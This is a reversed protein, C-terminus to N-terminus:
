KVKKKTKKEQDRQAKIADVVSEDLVRLGEDPNISYYGVHYHVIKGGPAIVVWLPLKAGSERPDGFKELLSGSDVGIPYSLNMFSQLKRISRLAEGRQDNKEVRPDIAVGIVQTGSKSRKSHLFDLYGVQGYPEVLPEGQYEWFHLVITKDALDNSSFSKQDLSKISFDPTPQGVFKKALESVDGARRLQAKVDRSIVSSLRSFPTDDAETELQSLLPEVVALQEATLEPETSQEPRKLETQIKRLTALPAQFRQWNEASVPQASELDMLMSFQDGQGMFVRQKLAVVIGTDAEVALSKARGFNTSGEVLWCDRDKVKDRGQVEYEFKGEAWKAEEKVKAFNEFLPLPLALPHLVGNHDHLLQITKTPPTESEPEVAVFGYREPWAWGGGGREELVYVIETGSPERPMVLCFLNFRKVAEGDEGKAAAFLSGSYRLEMVATPDDAMWLTSALVMQCLLPSM